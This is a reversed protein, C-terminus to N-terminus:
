QYNEPFLIRETIEILIHLCMMHIEQIRDSTNGPVILKPHSNNKLKGGDKGLFLFVFLGLKEAEEVARIVNKSNGSTSLAILVDGKKGYAQVGRSFIEDFGFDNAVCTVHAAETLSLAPLPKRSERFQGTFEEAFHLADCASGGNGCSLVMGGNKFCNALTGAMKKLEEVNKTESIFNSLTSLAVDFSNKIHISLNEM